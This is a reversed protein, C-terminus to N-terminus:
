RKKSKRKQSYAEYSELPENIRDDIAQLDSYDQIMESIERLVEKLYPRPAPLLKNAIHKHGPYTSLKKAKPDFANDYRFILTGDKALYNYGYKLVSVDESKVTVFEEFLLKSNNIFIISGYIFAANPPREEFSLNQSEIFPCSSIVELISSLYDKIQM